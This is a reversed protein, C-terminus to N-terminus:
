HPGTCMAPGGGMGMMNRPSPAPASGCSAEEEEQHSEGAGFVMSDDGLIDDLSSGFVMDDGFSAEHNFLDDLSGFEPEEIRSNDKVGTAASGEMSELIADLKADTEGYISDLDLNDGGLFDIDAKISDDVPNISGLIDNGVEKDLPKNSLLEGDVNMASMISGKGGVKGAEAFSFSSLVVCTGAILGFSKLAYSVRRSARKNPSGPAVMLSKTPIELMAGSSRKSAFAIDGIETASRRM